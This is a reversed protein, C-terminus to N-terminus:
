IAGVARLAADLSDVVHVPCDNRQFLAITTVEAPTLKRRSAPKSGDKIELLVIRGRFGALADLTGALAHLDLVAVGVARLGSVIERHNGDVRRAYRSM